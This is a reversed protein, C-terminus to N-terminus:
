GAHSTRRSSRAQKQLSKLENRYAALQKDYSQFAEVDGRQHAAKRLLECDRLTRRLNSVQVAHSVVFTQSDNM